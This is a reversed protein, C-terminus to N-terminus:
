PLASLVPMNFESWDITLWKEGLDYSHSLLPCGISIQQSGLRGDNFQPSYRPAVDLVLDLFNIPLFHYHFDINMSTPRQREM